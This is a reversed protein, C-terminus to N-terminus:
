LNKLAGDLQQKLRTVDALHLHIHLSLAHLDQLGLGAHLVQGEALLESAAAGVSRSGTHGRQLEGPSPFM